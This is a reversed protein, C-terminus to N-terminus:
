AVHTGKEVVLIKDLNAAFAHAISILLNADLEKHSHEPECYVRALVGKLETDDFGVVMEKIPEIAALCSNWGIRELTEKLINCDSKHFMGEMVGCWECHKKDIACRTDGGIEGRALPVNKEEPWGDKILDKIKM